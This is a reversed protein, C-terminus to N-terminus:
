GAVPPVRHEISPPLRRAIARAPYTSLSLDPETLPEPRFEGPRSPWLTLAPLRDLRPRSRADVEDSHASAAQGRSTRVRDAGSCVTERNSCNTIKIQSM